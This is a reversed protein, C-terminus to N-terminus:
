IAECRFIALTVWELWLYDLTAWELGLYDFTAWYLGLYGLIGPSLELSGLIAQYLSVSISWSLSLYVLFTWSQGLYVLISWFLRLYVLIRAPWFFFCLEIKCIDRWRFILHKHFKLGWNFDSYHAVLFYQSLDTCIHTCMFCFRARPNIAVKCM